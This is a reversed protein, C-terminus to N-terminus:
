EIIQNKRALLYTSLTTFVIVSISSIPMLIAAMVPSLLGQIAFSLGVVNYILSIVFSTKIITLTNQAYKFFKALKHFVSADMIVDSGPSFHATNETVSIGIDAVKLAGADNLGDGIMGVKDGSEKLQHIYLMKESPSMEFLMQTDKPFFGELRNRESNNDGSLLSLKRKRGLSQLVESLGKRYSHNLEFYGLVVGNISVYVRTSLIEGIAEKPLYNIFSASGIKISTNGIIGSLGKGNIESYSDIVMKETHDL